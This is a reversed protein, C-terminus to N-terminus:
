QIAAPFYAATAEDDKRAAEQEQLEQNRIQAMSLTQLNQAAAAQAQIAQNEVAIRGNITSVQTIDKANSLEQKMEDLSALRQNISDLNQAAIGQINALSTERQQYSQAVPDTGTASYRNLSMFSQGYSNLTNTAGTIQGTAQTVTPLPNQLNVSNFTTLMGTAVNPINQLLQYQAQLQKLEDMMQNIENTTNTVSQAISANDFVAVQARAADAGILSFWVVAVLSYAKM